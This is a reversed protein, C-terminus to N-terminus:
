IHTGCIWKQIRDRTNFIVPPFLCARSAATWNQSHETSIEEETAWHPPQPHLVRDPAIILLQNWSLGQPLLYMIYYMICTVTVEDMLSVHVFSCVCLRGRQSGKDGRSCTCLLKNISGHNQYNDQSSCHRQNVTLSDCVCTCWRIYESVACVNACQSMAQCGEPTSWLRRGSRIWWYHGKAPPQSPVSWRTGNM